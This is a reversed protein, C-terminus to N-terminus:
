AIHIQIFVAYYYERAVWGGWYHKIVSVVSVGGIVM